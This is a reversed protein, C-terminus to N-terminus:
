KSKNAIRRKQLEGRGHGKALFWVSATVSRIVNQASAQFCVRMLIIRIVNGRNEIV